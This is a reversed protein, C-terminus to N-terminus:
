DTPTKDHRINETEATRGDGAGPYTARVYADLSVQKPRRALGLSQDFARAERMLSELKSLWVVRLKGRKDFLGHTDLAAHVHLIQRHLAARYQHQSLRRTPITDRGGDDALSRDLFSQVDDDLGVGNDRGHPREARLGTRIAAGNGPRFRGTRPDRDDPPPGTPHQRPARGAPADTTHGDKRSRRPM